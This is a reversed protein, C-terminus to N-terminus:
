RLHLVKSNTSWNMYTLLSIENVSLSLFMHNLLTHSSISLSDVMQFHSIQSKVFCFCFFVSNKGNTSRNTSSYVPVVKVTNLRNSHINPPFSTLHQAINEIFGPLTCYGHYPYTFYVYHEYVYFDRFYVVNM